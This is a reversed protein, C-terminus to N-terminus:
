NEYIAIEKPRSRRVSIIRIVEDRPTFVGSWHKDGIRGFAIWRPEGDTRAKIVKLSSDEWLRQADKFNIGHKVLNTMSKAPNYDFEM